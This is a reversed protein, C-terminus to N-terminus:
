LLITLHITNFEAFCSSIGSQAICFLAFYYTKWHLLGVYINSNVFFQIKFNPVCFLVVIDYFVMGYRYVLHWDSNSGAHPHQFWVFRRHQITHDQLTNCLCWVTRQSASSEIKSHQICVSTPFLMNEKIPMARLDRTYADLEYKVIASVFLEIRQGVVNPISDQPARSRTNYLHSISYIHM